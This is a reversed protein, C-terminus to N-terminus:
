ILEGIRETIARGNRELADKWFAIDMMENWAWSEVKRGECAGPLAHQVREKDAMPLGPRVRGELDCSSCKVYFVAGSDWRDLTVVFVSM